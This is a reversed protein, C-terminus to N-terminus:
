KVGRQKMMADAYAYAHTALTKVLDNMAAGSAIVKVNPNSLLGNLAAMAIEDRLTKDM